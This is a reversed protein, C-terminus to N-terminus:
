GTKEETGSVAVADCIDLAYAYITCWIVFVPSKASLFSKLQGLEGKDRVSKM